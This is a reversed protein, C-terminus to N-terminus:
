EDKFNYQFKGKIDDNELEMAQNNNITSVLKEESNDRAAEDIAMDAGVGKPQQNIPTESKMDMDDEEDTFHESLINVDLDTFM